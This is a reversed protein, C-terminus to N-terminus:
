RVGIKTVLDYVPFLVGAIILLFIGGIVIIVIPEILKEIRQSIANLRKIFEESLYNLQETLNGAKEGIDILRTVLNSFIDHKRLAEHIMSGQLIDERVVLLARRFVANHMVNILIDFSRDITLGAQLMIRLQESFLAQLRNFVILKVIPIRLKAMDIYYKTSEKESLLKLVGLIFLPALLLIYWNASVFGSVTILAQTLAPIKIGMDKFVGTVQPLVYVLWFILAGTTATVAFAPYMLARRIASKLDEMRQLHMAVDSLSKDLQGTEEGVSVLHIFVQPFIDKHYSLARSFSSGLEIIRKIDIIRRRFGRNELTESIDSLSTLIPLGAKLMVSLNNAFEIIDKPRIGRDKFRGIFSRIFKNSRRINLIYLGAGSINNYALDIDDGEISGKVIEGHPGIAKYTFLPM